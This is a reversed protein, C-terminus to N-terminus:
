GCQQTVPLCNPWVPKKPTGHVVTNTTSNNEGVISSLNPPPISRNTHGHRRPIGHDDPSTRNAKRLSGARPRVQPSSRISRPCHRASPGCNRIWATTPPCEHCDPIWKWRGEPREQCTSQLKRPHPHMYGLFPYRTQRGKKWCLFRRLELRCHVCHVGGHKKVGNTQPPRCGQCVLRSNQSAYRQHGVNERRQPHLTRWDDSLKAKCTMAAADTGAGAESLSYAGVEGAALRPLFEAKQEESGHSPSPKRACDLTFVTCLQLHHTSELLNRLSSRNQFMM